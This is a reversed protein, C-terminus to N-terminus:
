EEQLIEYFSPPFDSVKYIRVYEIEDIWIVHEPTIADLADFLKDPIRRKWQNIYIVLYHTRRIDTIREQPWENRESIGSASGSFFYSFPGSYYWSKVRLRESEPKDNLYAAAQDLGEGLGIGSEFVEGARKGGGLLPNFYTFYYPHSRAALLLQAIVVGALLVLVAYKRFPHGLKGKLWAATEIWGLAAILNLPLYIPIIYRHSNTSAITIPVVFALVFLVLAVMKSRSQQESFIGAKKIYSVLAALLGFLILPTTHWLYSPIYRVVYEISFGLAPQAAASGFLLTKTDRTHYVPGTFYEFLSGIPDAWMQPWLVVLTLAAIGGWLLLHSILSRVWSWYHTKQEETQNRWRVFILALFSLGVFPMLLIGPQKTLMALGCAVASVILFFIKRGDFAYAIIALTSLLMLGSLPGDLHAIRTLAIYYPEFAILLFGLMSPWLGFLRHAIAFAFLLVVTNWVTFIQRATVLIELPDVGKSLLFKEIQSPDTFQGQGFGRYEPFELLFAFTEVWMTIVGPTPNINSGPTKSIQDFERQALSYYFNASRYLWQPEDVTVFKDLEIWRPFGIALALLAYLLLTRWRSLIFSKTRGMVM